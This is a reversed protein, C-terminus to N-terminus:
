RVNERTQDRVAVIEGPITKSDAGALDGDIQPSLARIGLATKANVYQLNDYPENMTCKGTSGSLSPFTRRLRIMRAASSNNL